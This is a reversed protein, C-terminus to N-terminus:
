QGNLSESTRNAEFGAASREDAKHARRRLFAIGGIGTWILNAVASPWARHWATSLILLLMRCYEAPSVGQSRGITSLLRGCVSNDSFLRRGLRRCRHFFLADM